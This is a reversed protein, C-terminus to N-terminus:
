AVRWLKGFRQPRVSSQEWLALLSRSIDEPLEVIMETSSETISVAGISEALARAREFDPVAPAAQGIAFEGIAGFGPM